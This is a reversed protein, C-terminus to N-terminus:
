TRVSKQLASLAFLKLLRVPFLFIHTLLHQKQIHSRSIRQAVHGTSFLSSSINKSKGIEERELKSELILYSSCQFIFNKFLKVLPASQKLVLCVSLYICISLNIIGQYKILTHLKILILYSAFNLWSLVNMCLRLSAFCVQPKSLLLYPSM